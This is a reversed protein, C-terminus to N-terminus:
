KGNLDPPTYFIGSVDGGEVAYLAARGAGVSFNEKFVNSVYFGFSPPQIHDSYHIILEHQGSPIGVVSQSGQMIVKDSILEGDLKLDLIYFRSTNNQIVLAAQDKDTIGYTEARHAPDGVLGSLAGYLCPAICLLVSVVALGILLIKSRRSM